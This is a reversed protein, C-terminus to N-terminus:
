NSIFAFALTVVSVGRAIRILWTQVENTEAVSVGIGLFTLTLLPQLLTQTRFFASRIRFYRGAAPEERYFPLVRRLMGALSYALAVSLAIM